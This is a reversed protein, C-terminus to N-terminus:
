LMKELESKVNVWFLWQGNLGPPTNDIMLEAAVIAAKVALGWQLGLNMFKEILILAQEKPTMEAFTTYIISNPLSAL